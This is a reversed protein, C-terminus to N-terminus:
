PRAAIFLLSSNIVRIGLYYLLMKFCGALKGQWNRNIWPIMPREVVRVVKLHKGLVARLTDPTFSRQHGWRHFRHECEPCVVLSEELDERAPVTGMLKGGPKLVRACEMVTGELDADSLHELVESAIVFDFSAELFPNSQGWGVRAREGLNLRERLRQISAADPDLSHVNVGAALALEELRGSGVGINLVMQGRRLYGILHRLRGEAEKFSHTGENQFYKWIAQQDGGGVAPHEAM